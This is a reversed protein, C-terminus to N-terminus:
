APVCKVITGGVLHNVILFDGNELCKAQLWLCDGYGIPGAHLDFCKEVHTNSPRAEIQVPSAAAVPAALGLSAAAVVAGLGVRRFLRTKM